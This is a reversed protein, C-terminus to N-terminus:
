GHLPLTYCGWQGWCLHCPITRLIDPTNKKIQIKNWWKRAPQLSCRCSVMTQSGDFFLTEQMKEQQYVLGIVNGWIHKHVTTPYNLHKINQLTHLVPWWPQSTTNLDNPSLLQSSHICFNPYTLFISLHLVPRHNGIGYSGHITYISVNPTYQYCINGYITYM